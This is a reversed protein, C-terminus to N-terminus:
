NLEGLKTLCDKLREEWPLQSIGFTDQIKGCDLVSFIPRKAPTPFETTPIPRVDCRKNSHKRIADAFEYWSVSGRNAFHYIGPTWTDSRIITLIATALDFTYTPSGKQDDVVNVFERESMLRLMTKVFNKRYPSYLWSTRIIITDDNVGLALEEGKLKTYGYYNVPNTFDSERYPTFSNGDFVYDTSLHILKVKNQQCAFALKEVSIANTEYSLDRETEALDVATYAALNICYDFQVLSLYNFLTQHQEIPLINRDLFVFEIGKQMPALERFTQGSQGNAGTVLIRMPNM